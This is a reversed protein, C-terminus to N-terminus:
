NCYLIMLLQGFALISHVLSMAFNGDCNREVADNFQVNFYINRNVLRSIKISIHQIKLKALCFVNLLSM